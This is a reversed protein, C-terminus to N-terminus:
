GSRLLYASDQRSRREHLLLTISENARKSDLLQFLADDTPAHKILCDM